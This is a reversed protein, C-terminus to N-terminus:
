VIGRVNLDFSLENSAGGPTVSIRCWKFPAKMHLGVSNTYSAAPTGTLCTCGYQTIDQMDSTTTPIEDENSVYVKLAVITSVGAVKDFDIVLENYPYMQIDYKFEGADFFVGHCSGCKEYEIHHQGADRMAIMKVNCIPCNIDRIKNFEKGINKKGIDIAESGKMKKLQEQEALDFWIGYCNTCRDIQVSDFRDIKMEHNCKPCNM